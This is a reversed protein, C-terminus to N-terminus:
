SSSTDVKPAAAEFADLDRRSRNLWSHLIFFLISLVAVDFALWLVPPLGGLDYLKGMIYPGLVRGDAGIVWVLGIYFPAGLGGHDSLFAPVAPAILMEGLTALVMAFIMGTYNQTGLIVIYAVM